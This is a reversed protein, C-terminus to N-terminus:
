NEPPIQYASRLTTFIIQQWEDTKLDSPQQIQLFLLPKQHRVMTVIDAMTYSVAPPCYRQRTSKLSSHRKAMYMARKRKLMAELVPLRIDKSKEPLAKM